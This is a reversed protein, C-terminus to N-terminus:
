YSVFPVLKIKFIELKYFGDNLIYKSELLNQDIYVYVHYSRKETWMLESFIPM